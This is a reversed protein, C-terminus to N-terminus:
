WLAAQPGRAQLGRNITPSGIPTFPRRRLRGERKVFERSGMLIAVHPCKLVTKEHILVLMAQEHGTQHLGALEIILHHCVQLCVIFLIACKRALIGERGTEFTATSLMNRGCRYLAKSIAERFGEFAKKGSFCHTNRVDPEGAELLWM